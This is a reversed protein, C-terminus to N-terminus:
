LLYTQRAIISFIQIHFMTTERSPSPSHLTDHDLNRGQKLTEDSPKSEAIDTRIFGICCIPFM